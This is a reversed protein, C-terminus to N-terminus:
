SCLRQRVDRRSGVGLRSLVAHTHRHATHPSICLADAVEANTRREALLLAVRSQQPTLGFRAQLDEIDPIVAEPLTVVVVISDRHGTVVHSARMARVDYSGRTTVVTASTRGYVDLAAAQLALRELAAALLHGQVDGCVLRDLATSRHLERGDRDFLAAASGVEDLLNALGARARPLARAAGAGTRLAPLLLRGIALGREGFSPTHPSDHHVILQATGTPGRTPDILVSMILADYAKKPRAVDNWYPSRFYDDLHSGWLTSRNGVGLTNCREWFRFRTALGQIESAYDLDGPDIEESLYDVQGDVPFVFSAMDAGFLPKLTRNVALRWAVDDEYDLPSLLVDLTTELRAQDTSTLSIGM